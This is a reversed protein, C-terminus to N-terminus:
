DTIKDWLTIRLPIANLRAGPEATSILGVCRARRRGVTTAIVPEYPLVVVLCYRAWRSAWRCAVRALGALKL